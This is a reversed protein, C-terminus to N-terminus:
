VPGMALGACIRALRALACLDVPGREASALGGGAEVGQLVSEVRLGDDEGAFIRGAILGEGLFVVAGKLRLSGGLAEVDIGQDAGVPLLAAEM